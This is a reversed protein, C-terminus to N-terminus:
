VTVGSPFSSVLITSLALQPLQTELSSITKAREVAMTRRASAPPSSFTSTSLM